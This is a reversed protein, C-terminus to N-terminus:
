RYFNEHAFRTVSTSVSWCPKRWGEEQVTAQRLAVKEGFM